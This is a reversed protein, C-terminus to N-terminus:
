YEVSFDIGYTRPRTFVGAVVTSLNNMFLFERENFLNKGFLSVNAKVGGLDFDRIGIRGDVLWYASLKAVADTEPVGIPVVNAASKSRYRADIRVFPVAGNSFEAFDYQGGLSLNWKPADRPTAIDLGDRGVDVGGVVFSEYIFKQYGINTNLTLGRVPAAQLEVEFGKVKAKGANDYVLQGNLFQQVQLDKYDMYYADANVRLKRDFFDGKIGIEYSTLKEPNFAIGAVIGGSVYGTTLKAYATFNDRPKWSAIATYDINSFNSTHEGIGVNTTGGQLSSIDVFRRDWTARIGGTLDFSPSFHYTLQGFAAKSENKSVSNTVGGVPPLAVNDPYAQFTYLPDYAPSRENFYFLGGVFDVHDTSINLQLEQSFQRQKTKRVSQLLTYPAGSGEPDVLGGSAALDFSNPSIKMWRWASISKLTVTDTANWEMTLSHGGTRLHQDTNFNYIEDLPRTGINTHGGFYSQAGLIAAAYAGGDGGSFGVVQVPEGTAHTDSYDFKYDITLDDAAELHAAVRFADTNRAGLRKAATLVGYRGETSPGYDISLGAASNKKYGASEDHLYTMSLSLPGFAPLDISTRSRFSDYNGYSLDQKIRLEGSPTRSILSMAGATANRGFLTGQPGRLIEIREIDALDFLAGSARGIYVGDVYIGVSPDVANLTACCGIGRITISPASPDGQDKVTVNPALGDLNGISTVRNNELAETSLATIAIPVDQLNQERKQATVIIETLGGEQAQDAQAYAAGAVFMSAGALLGATTKAFKM